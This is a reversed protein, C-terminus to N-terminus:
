GVLTVVLSIHDVSTHEYKLEEGQYPIKKVKPGGTSCVASTRFKKQPVREILM